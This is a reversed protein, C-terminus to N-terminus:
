GGDTLVRRAMLHHLLTAHCHTARYSYSWHNLNERPSSTGANVMNTCNVLHAWNARFTLALCLRPELQFAHVIAIHEICLLLTNERRTTLM